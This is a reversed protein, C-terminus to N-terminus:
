SPSLAPKAAKSRTCTTNTDSTWTQRMCTRLQRNEWARVETEADTVQQHPMQLHQLCAQPARGEARAESMCRAQTRVPPCRCANSCAAHKLHTEGGAHAEPLSLSRQVLDFREAWSTSQYVCFATGGLQLHAAAFADARHQIHQLNVGLACV